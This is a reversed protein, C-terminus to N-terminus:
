PSSTSNSVPTRPMGTDDTTFSITAATDSTRKVSGSSLLPPITDVYAALEIKLPESINGAADKVVVYIDKADATWTMQITAATNTVSGADIGGSVIDGKTPAAADKDTIKYYARGAENSTFSLSGITANM